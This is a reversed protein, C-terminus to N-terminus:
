LKTLKSVLFEKIHITLLVKVEFFFFCFPKNTHLCFGKLM